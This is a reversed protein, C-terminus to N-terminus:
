GFRLMGLVVALIAAVVVVALLWFPFGTLAALVIVLALLVIVAIM